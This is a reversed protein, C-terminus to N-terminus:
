HITSNEDDDDINNMGDMAIPNPDAPNLSENMTLIGIKIFEVLHMLDSEETEGDEISKGLGEVDISAIDSFDNVLERVEPAIENEADQLCGILGLGYLIGECLQGIMSARYVVAENDDPLCLELEFGSGNLGKNTEQFLDHLGKLFSEKVSKIKAEEILKKIWVAEQIDADGCLLGILMGQIFAPSELETHPAVIEKIQDFDM